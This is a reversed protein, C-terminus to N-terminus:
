PCPKTSFTVVVATLVGGIIFCWAAIRTFDRNWKAKTWFLGM